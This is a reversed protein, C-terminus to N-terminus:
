IGYLKDRPDACDLHRIRCLVPWLRKDQASPLAALEPHIRNRLGQYVQVQSFFVSENAHCSTSQESMALLSLASSLCGWTFELEGCLFLPLRGLVLEQLTWMRTFWKRKLIDSLM